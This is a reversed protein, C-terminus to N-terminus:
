QVAFIYLEPIIEVINKQESEEKRGERERTIGRRLKGQKINTYRM